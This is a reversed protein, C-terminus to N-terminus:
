NNTKNKKQLIYILSSYYNDKKAKQNSKFGNRIGDIFFYKNGKYKESLMSVYYSDFIMPKIKIIKMNNKKALTQISKSSFHYLHRPVDYGAWYEKYLNADYSEFNPVAIIIIGSEKLHKKLKKLTEIPNYLHELVHWLTIVNYESKNDLKEVDEYIITTNKIISNTIANKNPEVGTINWGNKSCTELFEGTGCGVDLITGKEKSHNNILNLKSKLNIERVFKYLKEFLTNSKNSHSIYTESEYYKSIEETTPRPSTIKTNCNNCYVLMFSDNSVTFDKCVLNNKLSTENCIPCEKVIEYM